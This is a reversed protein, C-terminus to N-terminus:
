CAEFRYWMGSRKCATKSGRCSEQTTSLQDEEEVTWMHCSRTFCRWSFASIMRWCDWLAGPSEQVTPPDFSGSDRITQFCWQLDKHEYLKLLVVTSTGGPQILELFDTLWWKILCPTERSHGSFICCIWWPRFFFFFFFYQDQPHTLNGAAYHPEVSACLLPRLTCKLLCGKGYVTIWM